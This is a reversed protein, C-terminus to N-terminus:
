SDYSFLEYIVTMCTNCNVMKIMGHIELQIFVIKVKFDYIFYNNYIPRSTNNVKFARM